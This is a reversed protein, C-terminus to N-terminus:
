QPVDGCMLNNYDLKTNTETIMLFTCFRKKSGQIKLNFSAPHGRKCQTKGGDIVLVQPAQSQKM